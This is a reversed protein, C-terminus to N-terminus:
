ELITYFMSSVNVRSELEGLYYLRDAYDQMATSDIEDHRLMHALVVNEAVASDLKMYKVLLVRSQQEEQRSFDFAMNLAAIARSAIEPRTEIFSRSVLAVGQNNNLQEAYVSKHIRKFDGSEIAITTIPEYSHIADISGEYLAPLQNPPTIPIFGVGSIDVGKSILYKELLNTATSGPFVGIKKGELDTINNIASGMKAIISDFPQDEKPLESVSFIEMKGPDITEVIFAPM